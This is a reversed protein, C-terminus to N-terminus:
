QKKTEATLDEVNKLQELTPKKLAPAKQNSIIKWLITVSEANRRVVRFAVTVDRRDDFDLEDYVLGDLARYISGRYAIVRLIYTSNEKAKINRSYFLSENEIGDSLTQDIQRAQEFDDAIKFDTLFKLPKKQDSIDELAVDGADTMIAHSLIGSSHFDEGDYTLDSLRHLRYNKERFSFSSGAGPMSYKLCDESINYVNPSEACGRDIILKTLGTDTQQLFSAFKKQDEKEVSLLKVEKATPKRYIKSLSQVATARTWDKINRNYDGVSKLSDFRQNLAQKRRNTRKIEEASPADSQPALSQANICVTAGCLLFLFLFRTKM